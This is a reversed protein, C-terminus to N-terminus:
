FIKRSEIEPQNSELRFSYTISNQHHEIVKGDLQELFSEQLDTRKADNEFLKNLTSDLRINIMSKEISVSIKLTDELKLKSTIYFFNAICEHIFLGFPVAQKIHIDNIIQCDISINPHIYTGNENLNYSEIIETVYRKIPIFFGNIKYSQHHHALAITHIAHWTEQQIFNFDEATSNESKLKILSSIISLNNKLRHQIEALLIEKEKTKERELQNLKSEDSILEELLELKRLNSKIIYYIFYSVALLSLILNSKFMIEVQEEKLAQNEFLKYDTFVNICALSIIIFTQLFVIQRDKKTRFDFLNAIGLFLPFYYLYSGSDIGAYSDFYFIGFSIISYLYSIAVKYQNIYNFLITFLSFVSFCILLVGSFTDNVNLNTIGSILFVISAILTFVNLLGIKNKQDDSLSDNIGIESIKL